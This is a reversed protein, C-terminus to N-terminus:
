NNFFSDDSLAREFDEEEQKKMMERVEQEFKEEDEDWYGVYEAKNSMFETAEEDEVETPAVGSRSPVTVGAYYLVSIRTDKREKYKENNVKHTKDFNKQQTKRMKADSLRRKQEIISNGAKKRLPIGLKNDLYTTQMIHKQKIIGM